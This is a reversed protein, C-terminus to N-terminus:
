RLQQLQLSVLCSWQKIKRQKTIWFMPDSCEWIQGRSSWSGYGVDKAVDRQVGKSYELVVFGIMYGHRSSVYFDVNNLKLLLIERKWPFFADCGKGTDLVCTLLQFAPTLTENWSLSYCWVELSKKVSRWFVFDLKWCVWLLCIERSILMLACSFCETSSCPAWVMM